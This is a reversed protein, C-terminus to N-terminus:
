MTYDIYIGENNKVKSIYEAFKSEIHLHPYPGTGILLLKLKPLDLVMGYTAYDDIKLTELNKLKNIGEDVNAYVYVSHKSIDLYRLSIPMDICKLGDFKIYDIELYELSEFRKFFDKFDWSKDGCCYEGELYIRYCTNYINYSEGHLSTLYRNITNFLDKLVEDFYKNYEKKIDNIICEISMFKISLIPCGDIIVNEDTKQIIKIMWEKIKDEYTM